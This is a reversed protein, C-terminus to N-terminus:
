TCYKKRASKSGHNLVQGHVFRYARGTLTGKRTKASAWKGEPLTTEPAEGFYM